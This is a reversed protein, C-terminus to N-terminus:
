QKVYLISYRNDSKYLRITSITKQGTLCCWDDETGQARGEVPRVRPKIM